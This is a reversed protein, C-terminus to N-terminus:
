KSKCKLLELIKLYIDKEADKKKPFEDSQLDNPLELLKKQTSKELIQPNKAIWIPDHELGKKEFDLKIFISTKFKEQLFELLINKNLINSDKILSILDIFFRNIIIDDVLKIDYNSDLFIAGCIAEFVDALIRTGEVKQKESKFIFQRLDNNIAIKRLTEDNELSAKLKTIEGPDEIGLQKMKLIFILKIVADGLTELYEYSPSNNENGFQPTTLAQILLNENNFRYKIFKQFQIIRDKM